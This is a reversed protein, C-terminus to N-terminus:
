AQDRFFCAQGDVLARVPCCGSAPRVIRSIGRGGVDARVRQSARQQHLRNAVMIAATILMPAALQQFHPSAQLGPFPTTNDVHAIAGWRWKEDELKYADRVEAMPLLM